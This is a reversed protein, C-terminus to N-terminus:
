RAGTPKWAVAIVGPVEKGMIKRIGVWDGHERSRRVRLDVALWKEREGNRKEGKKDM